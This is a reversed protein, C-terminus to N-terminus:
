EESDEGGKGKAKKPRERLLRGVALDHMAESETLEITRNSSFAGASIASVGDAVYFTQKKM